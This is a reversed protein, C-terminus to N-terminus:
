KVNLVVQAESIWKNLLTELTTKRLAELVDQRLEDQASQIVASDQTIEESYYLVHFGDALQIPASVDGPKKLALAASVLKKDPIQVGKFVAYGTAPMAEDRNALAAAAEFTVQKERIKQALGAAQDKARQEVKLLLKRDSNLQSVQRSLLRRENELEEMEKASPKRSNEDYLIAYVEDLRKQVKNLEAVIEDMDSLDVPVILQKIFRCDKPLVASAIQGAELMRAYKAPNAALVADEEKQREDLAAAFDEAGVAVNKLAEEWLRSEMDPTDPDIGLAEARERLVQTKVMTEATLQNLEERSAAPNLAFMEAYVSEFAEKGFATGNVILAATQDHNLDIRFLEQAENLKRAAEYAQAEQAETFDYYVTLVDQGGVLVSVSVPHTVSDDADAPISDRFARLIPSALARLEDEAPAKGSSQLAALRKFLAEPKASQVDLEEQLSAFKQTEAELSGRLGAAEDTLARNKEELAAITNGAEEGAKEMASTTTALIVRTEALENRVADLEANLAKEAEEAATKAQALEGNLRTIQANLEAANKQADTLQETLSAVTQNLEEKKKDAAALDAQAKALQENLSAAQAASEKAQKDAAAKAATLQENLSAVTQNLATKDKDATALDAQAKALQENM